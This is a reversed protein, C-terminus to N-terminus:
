KLIFLLSESCVRGVQHSAKPSILWVMFMCLFYQYFVPFVIIIDFSVKLRRQMSHALIRSWDVSSLAMMRAYKARLDPKVQTSIKYIIGYDFFAYFLDWCAPYDVFHVITKNFAELFDSWVPISTNDMILFHRASHVKQRASHDADTGIQLYICLSQPENPPIHTHHFM